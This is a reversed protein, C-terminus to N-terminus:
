CNGKLLAQVHGILDDANFPKTLYSTAGLTAGRVISAADAEATLMIVPLEPRQTRVAHLVEFGNLEPMKVDCILLDYAQKELRALATFGNDEEDICLTEDWDELVDRVMERIVDQDDVILVKKM